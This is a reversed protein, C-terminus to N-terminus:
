LMSCNVRHGIQITGPRGARRRRNMTKIADSWKEKAPSNIKRSHCYIM